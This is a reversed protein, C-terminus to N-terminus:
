SPSKAGLMTSYLHTFNFGGKTPSGLLGCHVESREKDRLTCYLSISACLASNYSEQLGLRSYQVELSLSSESYLSITQIFTRPSVLGNNLAGYPPSTFSPELLALLAIYFTYLNIWM